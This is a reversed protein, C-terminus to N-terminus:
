YGNLSLISYTNIVTPAYNRIRKFKKIIIIAIAVLAFTLCITM